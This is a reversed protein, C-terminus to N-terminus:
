CIILFENKGSKEIEGDGFNDGNEASLGQSLDSTVEMYSIEYLSEPCDGIASVDRM